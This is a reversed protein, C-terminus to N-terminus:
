FEIANDLLLIANKAILCAEMLVKPDVKNPTDEVTHTFKGSSRTVIDIADFDRLHFPVSDTHAGTSIHFGYIQLKEGKAALHIYKSLVPAIKKRPIVGFSKIYEVRNKKTGAASVMDFNFQFIKGREFQDEHANVFFRSGMTGLEEASFQCFWLNFRNLPHTKFFRSLEFVIAMGSTNDLAGPSKNHTNLFMLFFNSGITLITLVIMFVGMITEGINVDIEGIRVILAPLEVIQVLELYISHTIYFGALFIGAYLWVMYVLIRGLSRINQSKTDLHASIVINGAEKPELRSAPIKAIVNTAIISNGYYEGWFGPYEPHKLGKVILLVVIVMGGILLTKILLYISSFFMLTSIFTMSMAGILKILSTSYFDSFEFEQTEIQDEQFGIEKFTKEALEVARKEGETGSLRPFDFTTIHNYLQEKEFYGSSQLDGNIL